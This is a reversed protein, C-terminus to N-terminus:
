IKWPLYMFIKNTLKAQLQAGRVLDLRTQFPNIDVDVVTMDAKGPETATVQYRINDLCLTGALTTFTVTPHLMAGKPKARSSRFSQLVNEISLMVRNAGHSGARLNAAANKGGLQAGQAHLWESDFQSGANDLIKTISKAYKEWADKDTSNEPDITAFSADRLAKLAAFRPNFEIQYFGASMGARGGSIKHYHDASTPIGPVAPKGAAPILDWIYDGMFENNRKNEKGSGIAFPVKLRSQLYQKRTAEFNAKLLADAASAKYMTKASTYAAKLVLTGFTAYRLMGKGHEKLRRKYDTKKLLKSVRYFPNRNGPVWKKNLRKRPARKKKKCWAADVQAKSSGRGDADVYTTPNGRVFAYLNLGDVLGGPDPNIWRCLWPPYYRRGYYIMGTASDREKGSYGYDKSIWQLMTDAVRYAPEGYPLQGQCSLLNGQEGLEMTQSGLLDHLHYHIRTEGAAPVERGCGDLEWTHLTAFCVSGDMIRVSKRLLIPKDEGDGNRLYIRKEEYQQFYRREEVEWQKGGHGMREWVKRTRTGNSDYVYYEADPAQGGERVVLDIRQINNRYDWHLEPMRSMQLMNGSADYPYTTDGLRLLRNSDDAIEFDRTWTGGANDRHQLCTLNGSTDYAYQEQYQILRKNGNGPRSALPIHKGARQMAAQQTDAARPRAQMAGTASVLQYLPDYTYDQLPSAPSVFEFFNGLAKDESRTVNGTPDYTYHLDQLVKVGPQGNGADSVAVTSRILVLNLTTDEYDYRTQVGNGYRILTRAGHADYLIEKIENIRSGDPQVRDVALLQGTDDFSSWLQTGDPMIGVTVAGAANYVHDMVLPTLAAVAGCSEANWDAEQRYDDRLRQEVRTPAGLFTYAPYTNLGDEGYHQFVQGILNWTAAQDVQEGYVTQEVYQDLALGKGDDGVVKRAVPRQLRDYTLQNTFGRPDWTYRPHGFIDELVLLSGGDSSLTLLAQGSMSYTWAVNAKPEGTQVAVLYLRPDSNLLPRGEFDYRAYQTLCSQLLLATLAQAAADFPEPLALVFEPQYPQFQPTVWGIATLYGATVLAAFLDQADLGAADAIPELAAPSLQGLNNTITRIRHGLNDLVTCSPTGYHRAAKQLADLENAFAADTNTISALYYPAEKVTDNLDWEQQEWPGYVARSFFGKPTDTRTVRGIPDYHLVSPPPVRMGQLLQEQPVYDSTASFYPQYQQSPQGKNTYVTRGSARWRSGNREKTVLSRGLGDTYTIVLRIPPSAGAALTHVHAQRTLSIGCAPQRARQWAFLDYYFFNSMGQLFGTPDNLVAEKFTHRQPVYTSIDADGVREGGEHGWITSAIVHGLPDFLVQSVTGNPDTSQWPQMVQYDNLLTTTLSFNEDLVESTSVPLLCYADYAQSQQVDLASGSPVDAFSNDTRLPLYFSNARNDYHQILGRNWWYGEDLVYGMEQNMLTDLQGEAFRAAYLHTAQDAALEAHEEHHVLARKFATGLPAADTQGANWYYHRTWDQLRAMRAPPTGDPFPAHYPIIADLAAAVQGRLDDLTFYRGNAPLVGHLQFSRSTVPLGLLRCAQDPDALDEEILNLCSEVTLAVQTVQQEPYVTADAQARRPYAVSATQLAHCYADLELSLMHNILPDGANRDYTYAYSERPDVQFVPHRNHGRPQVLRVHLASERVTYPQGAVDSGDLGFVENRLMQGALAVFAERYTEGDSALIAADMSSALHPFAGPDGRWYEKQYTHTVEMDEEFAGTHFWTKTYTPPVHLAADPATVPWEALTCAQTFPEYHDTDWSEVFGFGRFEREIPDYYGDHYAFRQLNRSQNFYELTEVSEVVHVPFFLRTPWPRGQRKDALYQQVSSGYNIHTRVGMGNDTHHLLYPKQHRCFDFYDHRVEPHLRSMVLCTTGNGRVDMWNISSLDDYHRPLPLTVPDSFSNGSHNFYIEVRDPYAYILDLTGSGDIDAFHLRSVDLTGGFLPANDFAIRGGFRGHGLNPWLEVNGARIRVRHQLGDGILDLFLVAEEKYDSNPLPFDAALAQVHAQGFGQSGESPYYRLYPADFVVLDTFGRGSLDVMEHQLAQLESPVHKFNEWTKFQGQSDAPYYGSRGGGLVILDHRGNGNLSSLSVTIDSLERDLPFRPLTTGAAYRGEGMPAFYTMGDGHAYLMGPLGEGHLDIPRFGNQGLTGALQEAGDVRLSDWQGSQPAFETYSLRLAPIPEQWYTGDEMWRHGVAHLESLLTIGTASPQYHLALSQVLVAKGDFQDHFQHYLLVRRCLRMTRLEFGARYDSHPDNRYAWNGSQDAPDTLSVQGYDFLLQFAFQEQAETGHYYNGYDVRLLYRQTQHDRGQECLRDPVNIDDEAKYTYRIRNGHDDEVTELLWQFIRGPDAPDAVRAAATYGYYSLRDDSDRIQWFSQGDPAVWHQIEAHDEEIRCCYRWVEYALGNYTCTTRDPKGQPDLAPVWEGGPGQFADTGDYRPVGHDAKRQVLALGLHFGLGFPGNGASSSYDLSLGPELGRAETAPLPVQMGGAGNFSQPSFPEGLGKVAGGGKPLSVGPTSKKPNSAMPMNTYIFIVWSM